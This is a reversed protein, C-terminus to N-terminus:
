NGRKKRTLIHRLLRPRLRTWLADLRAEDEAGLTRRGFEVREYADSLSPLGPEEPLTGQLGRLFERPTQSPRPGVGAWSALRRTKELVQAPRSLGVLGRNWAFRLGAASALLLGVFLLLPVALWPLLAGGGAHEGPVAAAAPEPTTTAGPVANPFMDLLEQTSIADLPSGSLTDEPSAPAGYPNYARSPSFPIWGLGPFYVEPWAYANNGFVPYVGEVNAINQPVAFGVALRAPIGLTRLMVVMASAHYLPHGKKQDFLFYAVADSNSPPASEQLEIPYSRLYDEITSAKDYSNFSGDSLERALNAVALPLEAPLQLYRNTVWSPYDDGSARLTEVSATSALGVAIYRDGQKLPESPRLSTVNSPDAATEVDAKKDVLLPDGPTVFVPLPQQV